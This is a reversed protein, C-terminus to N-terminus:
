PQEAFRHMWTFARSLMRARRLTVRGGTTSHPDHVVHIDPEFLVQADCRAAAEAVAYEEALLPVGRPLGVEDLFARSFVFMAGYPAYMSTGAPPLTVEASSPAVRRPARLAALVLFAYAGAVSDTVVHNVWLRSRSRPSVLHPNKEVRADGETIRPAVVVCSAAERTSLVSSLRDGVVDLDTNSLVAWGVPEDPFAAAYAEFAAIGGDLYGPNDPRAVQADIGHLTAGGTPHPSNDCVAIRLAPDVDRLHDVFAQVEDHNDYAVLAVVTAGEHASAEARPLRAFPRARASTSVDPGQLSSARAAIAVGFPIFVMWMGDLKLLYPDLASALATGVFGAGVSAALSDRRWAARLLWLAIWLAWSGLVLLGLLGFNSLIVHYTLEFSWPAAPDRVYDDPVAGSGKGVVPSEAWEELLERSQLERVGLGEAGMQEALEPDAEAAPTEQLTVQAVTRAFVETPGLGSVVGVAVVAAAVAAVAWGAEVLGRRVDLPRSSRRVVVLALLVLSAVVLAPVTLYLVRKGALMVGAVAAFFVLLTWWRREDTSRWFLRACGYPALFVLSNFGQFNTRLTSGTTDVYALAPDVLWGPLSVDLSAAIYLVFGLGVVALLAADLMVRVWHQWGPLRSVSGLLLGLVLPEIVFITLTPEAGPNGRAFGIVAGLVGLSVLLATWTMAIGSVRRQLLMLLLALALLPALYTGYLYPVAATVVVYATIISFQVATAVRSGDAM